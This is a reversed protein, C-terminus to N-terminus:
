IGQELIIDELSLGNMYIKISAGLILGKVLMSFTDGLGMTALTEWIYMTLIWEIM